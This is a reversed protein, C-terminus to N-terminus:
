TIIFQCPLRGFAYPPAQARLRYLEDTLLATPAYDRCDGIVEHVNDIRAIALADHCRITVDSSYSHPYVSGEGGTQAFSMAIVFRAVGLGLRSVATLRWPTRIIQRQAYDQWRIGGACIKASFSNGAATGCARICNASYGPLM